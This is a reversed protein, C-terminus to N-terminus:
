FEVLNLIWFSNRICTDNILKECFYHFLNQIIISFIKRKMLFINFFLLFGLRSFYEKFSSCIFSNLHINWFTLSKVCIKKCSTLDKVVSRPQWSFDGFLRGQGPTNTGSFSSASMQSNKIVYNDDVGMYSLCVQLFCLWDFTLWSYGISDYIAWFLWNSFM